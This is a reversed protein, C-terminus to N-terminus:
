DVVAVVEDAVAGGVTVCVLVRFGAATAAGTACCTDFDDADDEEEAGPAGVLPAPEDAVVGDPTM